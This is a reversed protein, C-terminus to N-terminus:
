AVAPEPDTPDTPQHGTALAILDCRRFRRRGSKLVVSAVHGVKAWRILTSESILLGNSDLEKLAQGTTLLAGADTETTM